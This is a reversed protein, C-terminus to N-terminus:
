RGVEHYPSSEQLVFDGLHKIMNNTYYLEVGIKYADSTNDFDTREMRIDDTSHVMFSFFIELFADFKRWNKPARDSLQEVMHAMFRLCVAKPREETATQEVGDADTFTTIVSDTEGALALDKEIEKLQTLAFKVIRALDKQTSKDNCDFLVEWLVESEPFECMRALFGKSLNPNSALIDMMVQSLREIGPNVLMRALIEFGVKAGVQLGQLKAEDDVDGDAVSKLIRMIFDFFETSYIDSEFTFKSNDEAVKKYIDNALEGDAASRYPRMEYHEDKEVDHHVKVGKKLTEQMKEPSVLIKLDKKVRREYFLMYASTGYSDGLSSM